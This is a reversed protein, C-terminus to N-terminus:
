NSEIALMPFSGKLNEGKIVLRLRCLSRYVWSVTNKKSFFLIFSSKKRRLIEMRGYKLNVCMKMFM